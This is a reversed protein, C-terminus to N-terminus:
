YRGYNFTSPDVDGSARTWAGGVNQEKAVTGVRDYRYTERSGLTSAHGDAFAYNFLGNVTDLPDGVAGTRSGHPLHQVPADAAGTANRDTMYQVGPEILWGSQFDFAGQVNKPIHHEAYTLTGPADLIDAIQIQKITPDPASAFQANATGLFGTTGSPRAPNAVRAGSVASYSRKHIDDNPTGYLARQVDDSPCVLVKLVYAPNNGGLLNPSYKTATPRENGLYGSILDDYAMVNHGSTGGATVPVNMWAQYPLYDKSDTAYTVAAINVQRINSLCASQRAIARAAGLAPLLIGILLAIISIVVLLEILTFASRRPM